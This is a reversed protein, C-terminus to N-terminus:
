SVAYGTFQRKYPAHFGLVIDSPPVGAQTLREAIATETGNYQVWIKDDKIDFHLVLGFVRKHGNWNVYCLQYHDQDTDCIIQAEVDNSHTYPHAHEQLINRIIQRYQERKDM